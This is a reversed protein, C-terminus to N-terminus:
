DTTGATMTKAKRLQPVVPRLSFTARGRGNLRRKVSHVTVDWNKEAGISADQKEGESISRGPQCGLDALGVWYRAKAPGNSTKVSELCVVVNVAHYGAPDAGLSQLLLIRHRGEDVTVDYRQGAGAVVEHEQLQVLEGMREEIEKFHEALQTMDVGPKNMHTVLTTRVDALQALVVGLEKTYADAEVDVVIPESKAQVELKVPILVGETQPALSVPITGGDVSLKFKMDLEPSGALTARIPLVVDRLLEGDTIQNGSWVAGISVVTATVIRAVHQDDGEMFKRWITAVRQGWSAGQSALDDWGLADATTEAVLTKWCPDNALRDFLGGPADSKRLQLESILARTDPLAALREIVRRRLPRKSEAAAANCAARFALNNVSYQQQSPQESSM